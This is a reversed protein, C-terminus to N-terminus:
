HVMDSSLELMYYTPTIPFSVEYGLSQLEELKAQACVVYHPKHAQIDQLTQEHMWQPQDPPSFWFQSAPKADVLLWLRYPFCYDPNLYDADNRGEMDDCIALYDEATTHANIYEAAARDASTDFPVFSNVTRVVYFGVGVFVTFGMLTKRAVSSLQADRLLAIMVLAFAPVVPAIYHPYSNGVYVCLAMSIVLIITLFVFQEERWRSRVAYVIYTAFVPLMALTVYLKFRLMKAIDTYGYDELTFLVYLRWFDDLNGQYVMCGIIPGFFLLIGVVVGAAYRLFARFDWHRILHFVMWLAMPILGASTNFKTMLCIMVAGMFLVVQWFSWYTNDRMNKAFFYACLAIGPTAVLDCSAENMYPVNLYVMMVLAVILSHKEDGFLRATRYIFASTVFVALGDILWVGTLGALAYALGYYIYTFPGKHDFMDVYMTLGQQIWMTPRMYLCADTPWNGNGWWAMSHPLIFVCAAIALLAYVVRDTYKYKPSLNM